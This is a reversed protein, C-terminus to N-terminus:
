KFFNLKKCTILLSFLWLYYESINRSNTFISCHKFINGFHNEEIKKQKLSYVLFPWISINCLIKGFGLLFVAIAIFYKSYKQLIILISDARHPDICNVSYGFLVRTVSM